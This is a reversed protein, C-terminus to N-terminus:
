FTFNSIVKESIEVINIKDRILRRLDIYDVVFLNIYSKLSFFEPM